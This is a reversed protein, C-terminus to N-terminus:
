CGITMKLKYRALCLVDEAKWTRQPNLPYLLDHSQDNDGLQGAAADCSEHRMRLPNRNQRWAIDVLHDVLM